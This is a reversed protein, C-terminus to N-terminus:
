LLHMFLNELVMRKNGNQSLFRKADSLAKIKEPIKESSNDQSLDNRLKKRLFKELFGLVELIESIDKKAFDEASKMKELNTMQLISESELKRTKETEFFTKDDIMKILFEGRGAAIDLLEKKESPSFKTNEVEHDLFNQLTNESALSFYERRVRSVFTELLKQESSCSMLFLTKQPPEELIKLFKNSTERTMREVDRILVIKYEGTTTEFLHKTFAELDDVGITNSKKKLKKRHSQNFFSSKSIEELNKHKGEQYLADVKMVEPPFFKGSTKDLISEALTQLFAFKGTGKPGSILLAHPLTKAKGDNLIKERIRHNGLFITM